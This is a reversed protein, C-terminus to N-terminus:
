TALPTLALLGVVAFIPAYARLREIAVGTL